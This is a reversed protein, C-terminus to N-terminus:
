GWHTPRLPRNGIAHHHYRATPEEGMNLVRVRFLRGDDEDTLSLSELCAVVSDSFRRM